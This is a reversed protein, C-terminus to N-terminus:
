TYMYGHQSLSLYARWYDTDIISGEEIKKKDIASIHRGYRENDLCAELRHYDSGDEIIGIVCHGEIHRGCNYKRKGFKSEDIRVVKKPGGIKGQAKQSELEYLAM